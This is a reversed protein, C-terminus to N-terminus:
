FKAWYLPFFNTKPQTPFTWIKFFIGIQFQMKYMAGCMHSCFYPATIIKALKCRLTRHYFHSLVASRASRSGQICKNKKKSFCVCMLFLSFNRNFFFFFLPFFIRVCFCAVFEVLFDHKYLQLKRHWRFSNLQSNQFVVHLFNYDKSTKWYNTLLGFSNFPFFLFLIGILRLNDVSLWPHSECLTMWTYRM